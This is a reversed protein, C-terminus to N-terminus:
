SSQSTADDIAYTFTPKKKDPSQFEYEVKTFQLVFSDHPDGGESGGIDVHSVLVEELKIVVYPQLEKGTRCVTLTAKPQTGSKGQSCLMMLAASGKCHRKTLNLGSVRTNGSQLAGPGADNSVAWNYGTIVMQDKFATATADGSVGDIKLFVNPNLDSM